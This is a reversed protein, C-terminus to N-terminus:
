GERPDGGGTLRDATAGNDVRWRWVSMGAGAVTVSALAVCWGGLIDAPYHADLYLRSAAVGLVVMGAAALVVYRFRTQWTAAVAVAAAAMSGAAHGSPFGDFGTTVPMLTDSALTAAFLIAVGVAMPLAITRWRPVAALLVLGIVIALVITTPPGDVSFGADGAASPRPAAALGKVVRGVVDAGVIAAISTVAEVRRGSSWLWGVLLGIIVSREDDGFLASFGAVLAGVPGVHGIAPDPIYPDISTQLRVAGLVPLALLCILIVGISVTITLRNAMREVLRTV